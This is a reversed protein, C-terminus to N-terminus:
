QVYGKNFFIHLVVLFTPTKNTNKVAHIIILCEKQLIFWKM